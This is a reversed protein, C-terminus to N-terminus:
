KSHQGEKTIYELGPFTKICQLLGCLSLEDDISCMTLPWPDNRLCIVIITKDVYGGCYDLCCSVKDQLSEISDFLTDTWIKMHWIISVCM